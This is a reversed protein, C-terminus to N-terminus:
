AAEALLAERDIPPGVLGLGEGEEVVPLARLGELDGETFQFNELYAVADELGAAVLYSRGAPLQRVFLEFVARPSGGEEQARAWYGAAMTLQYLDTMVAPPITRM